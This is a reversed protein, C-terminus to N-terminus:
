APTMFFPLVPVTRAVALVSTTEFPGDRIGARNSFQMPLRERMYQM